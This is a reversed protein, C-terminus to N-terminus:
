PCAFPRRCARGCWRRIPWSPSCCFPWWCWSASFFSSCLGRYASRMLSKVM